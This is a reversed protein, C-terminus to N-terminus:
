LGQSIRARFELPKGGQLNVEQISSVKHADDQGGLTNGGVGRFKEELAHTKLHRERSRESERFAWGARGVGATPVTVLVCGQSLLASRLGELLARHGLGTGAERYIGLTRSPLPPSEGM